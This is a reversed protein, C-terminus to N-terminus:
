TSNNCNKLVVTECTIENDIYYNFCQVHYFCNRARESLESTLYKEQWEFMFNM